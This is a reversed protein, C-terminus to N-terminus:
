VKFRERIMKLQSVKSKSFITSISYQTKILIMQVHYYIVELRSMLGYLRFRYSNNDNYYKARRFRLRQCTFMTWLHYQAIILGVQVSIQRKLLSYKGRFDPVVPLSHFPRPANPLHQQPVVRAVLLRNVIAPAIIKAIAMTTVAMTTTTM